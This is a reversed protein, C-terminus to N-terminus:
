VGTEGARRGDLRGEERQYKLMLEVTERLCHIGAWGNDQLFLCLEHLEADVINPRAAIVDGHSEHLEAVTHTV